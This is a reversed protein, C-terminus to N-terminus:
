YAQDTARDATRGTDIRERIGSHQETLRRPVVYLFQRQELYMHRLKDFQAVKM